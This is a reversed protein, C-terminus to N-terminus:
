AENRGVHHEPANNGRGDGKTEVIASLGAIKSFSDEEGVRLSPAKHTKETEEQPVAPGLVNDIRSLLSKGFFCIGTKTCTRSGNCCVSTSGGYGYPCCYRNGPSGCFLPASAPCCAGEFACKNTASCCVNTSGNPGYKCCFERGNAGSCMLPYSASCCQNKYPCKGTERCACSNQSNCCVYTSGFLGYPCCYDNSYGHCKLPSYSPCVTNYNLESLVSAKTENSSTPSQTQIIEENDANVFTSLLLIVALSIFSIM